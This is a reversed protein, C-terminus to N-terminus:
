NPKGNLVRGILNGQKDYSEGEWPKDDKFEGKFKEGKKDILTGELMQCKDFDGEFQWGHSSTYTGKTYLGEKFIGKFSNGKDFTAEGEGNPKGTDPNIPGTYSYNQPKGGTNEIFFEKQTVYDTPVTVTINETKEKVKKNSSILGTFLLILILAAAASAIWIWNNSKKNEQQPITQPSSFPKKGDPVAPTLPAPKAPPDIITSIRPPTSAPSKASPSMSQNHLANWFESASQFRSEPLVAM